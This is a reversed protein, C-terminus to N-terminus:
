AAEKMPLLVPLLIPLVEDPWCGCAPTRDGPLRGCDCEHVADLADIWDFRGALDRRGRVPFSPGVKLAHFTQFHNEAQQDVEPLPKAVPLRLWPEPM